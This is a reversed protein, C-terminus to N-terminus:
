WIKKIMSDLGYVKDRISKDDNNNGLGMRPISYPSHSQIKYNDFRTTFALKFNNDKLIKSDNKHYANKVGYPYAFLDIEKKTINELIKKSILIEKIKEDKNLINLNQHNHTHSGIRILKELSIKKIDEQNLFNRKKDNTLQINNELLIKNFLDVQNDKKLLFFKSKLYEFLKKRNNNEHLLLFKKGNFSFNNKLDLIKWLRDWWPTENDNIFNTTIFITAKADYKKLIPLANELNDLYGDDFTIVIKKKKINSIKEFNLLDYSDIIKFNDKIYKIHKEFVDTNIALDEDPTGILENAKLNTVKHYCFITIDGSLISTIKQTLKYSGVFNKFTHLLRM